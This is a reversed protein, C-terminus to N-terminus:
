RSSQKTKTSRKTRDNSRSKSRVKQPQAYSEQPQTVRGTATVATAPSENQHAEKAQVWALMRLTIEGGPKPISTKRKETTTLWDSLQQQSVGLHDALAKKEGRIATARRLRDLLDGINAPLPMLSNIVAKDSLILRKRILSQDKNVFIMQPRTRKALRETRAILEEYRRRLERQERRIEERDAIFHAAVLSPPLNDRDSPQGVGEALWPISTELELGLVIIVHDRPRTHKLWKRVAAPTVGVRRALERRSIGKGEM